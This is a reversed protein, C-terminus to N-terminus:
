DHAVCEHYNRGFTVLGCLGCGVETDLISCKDQFHSTLMTTPHAPILISRLLMMLAVIEIGIITM